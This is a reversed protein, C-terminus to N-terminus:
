FLSSISHNYAIFNIKCASFLKQSEVFEAQEQRRKELREKRTRFQRRRHIEDLSYNEISSISNFLLFLGTFFQMTMPSILPPHLRVEIVQFECTLPLHSLSRFQSRLEKLFFCIREILFSM